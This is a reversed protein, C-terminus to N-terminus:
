KCKGRMGKRKMMRNKRWVGKYHRMWGRILSAITIQTQLHAAAPTELVAGTALGDLRKRSSDVVAVRAKAKAAM